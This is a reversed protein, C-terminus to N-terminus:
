SAPKSSEGNGNGKCICDKLTLGFRGCRYCFLRQKPVPCSRFVHGTERCNWCRMNVGQLTNSKKSDKIETLAPTSNTLTKDTKYALDPELSNVVTNPEAIFILVSESKGQTRAKAESLLEEQYFPSQFSRKLLLVLENWSGVFERNARFWILADGKFFDIAHRWLDDDTANRADKLEHVREIFANVSFKNDGYFHVGWQCIPVLKLKRMPTEDFTTSNFVKCPSQKERGFPIHLDEQAFSVKRQINSNLAFIGQTDVSKTAESASPLVSEPNVHEDLLNLIKKGDDGISNHLAERMEPTIHDSDEIEDKGELDKLLIVAKDLLVNRRDKEVEDVPVALKLRNVVHFLRSVLRKFLLKDPKENLESVYCMLNNVKVACVDLELSPTTVSAQPSKIEYSVSMVSEAELMKKLIKKLASVLGPQSYGRCALEFEVEDKLLHQPDM